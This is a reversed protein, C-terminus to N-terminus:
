SEDSVVGRHPATRDARRRLLFIVTALIAISTLVVGLWRARRVFSRKGFLADAEDFFVASGGEVAELVHALQAETEDLYHSVLASLDSSAQRM